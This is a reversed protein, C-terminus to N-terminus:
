RKSCGDSWCDRYSCTCSIIVAEGELLLLSFTRTVHCKFCYVLRCEIKCAALRPQVESLTKELKMCVVLVCVSVAVVRCCTAQEFWIILPPEFGRFERRFGDRSLAVETSREIM